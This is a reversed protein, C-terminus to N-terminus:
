PSQFEQFVNGTDSCFIVSFLRISYNFTVSCVFCFFFCIRFPRGPHVFTFAFCSALHHIIVSLYRTVFQCCIVICFHIRNFMFFFQLAFTSRGVKTLNSYRTIVSNVILVRIDHQLNGEKGAPESTVKKKSYL